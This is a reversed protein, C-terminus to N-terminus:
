NCLKLFQQFMSVFKDKSINSKTDHGFLKLFTDVKEQPSPSQKLSTLTDDVMKKFEAVTIETKGAFTKAVCADFKAQDNFVKLAEKVNPDIKDAM